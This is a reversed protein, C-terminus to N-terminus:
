KRSQRRTKRKRGLRLGRRSPRKRGLTYAALGMLVGAPALSYASSALAGYLSGGKMSNQSAGTTNMASTVEATAADEAAYDPQEVLLDENSVMEPSSLGITESNLRSAVSPTNVIVSPTKVIASPTKVVASPTGVNGSTANRINEPSASLKSSVHGNKDMVLLTPFGEVNEKISPIAKSVNDLQESEVSVNLVGPTATRVAEKYIPMATHCHGCWNAYVFMVIIPTKGMHSMLTKVDHQSKIDLHGMTAGSKRSGKKSRANPTANLLQQLSANKKGGRM